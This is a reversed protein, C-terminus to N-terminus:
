VLVGMDVIFVEVLACEGHAEVFNYRGRAKTGSCSTLVVGFNGEQWSNVSPVASSFTLCGSGFGGFLQITIM